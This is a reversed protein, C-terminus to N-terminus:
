VHTSMMHRKTLHCIDVVESVSTWHVVESVSSFEEWKDDFEKRSLTQPRTPPIRVPIQSHHKSSIVHFVVVIRPPLIMLLKIKPTSLLWFSKRLHACTFDKQRKMESLKMEPRQHLSSSLKM